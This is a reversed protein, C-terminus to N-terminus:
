PKPIELALTKNTTTDVFVTNRIILLLEPPVSDINTINELYSTSKSGSIFVEALVMGTESDIGTYISAKEYPFIYQVIVLDRNSARFSKIFKMEVIEKDSISMNMVKKEVLNEIWFHPLYYPLRAILFMMKQEDINPNFYYRKPYSYEPYWYSYIVVPRSVNDKQYMAIAHIVYFFGKSHLPYQGASTAYVVIHTENGVVINYHKGSYIIKKRILGEAIETRNYVFVSGPEWVSGSRFNEVARSCVELLTELEMDQQFSYHSFWFLVMLFMVVLLFILLLTTARKVLMTKRRVVTIGTIYTGLGSGM